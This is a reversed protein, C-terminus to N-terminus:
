QMGQLAKSMNMSDKEFVSVAIFKGEHRAYAYPITAMGSRKVEEAYLKDGLEFLKALESKTM